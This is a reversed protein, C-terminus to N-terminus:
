ISSHFGFVTELTAFDVYGCIFCENEMAEEIQYKEDRLESFTDVIIGFVVNLGVITVVIFFSLDFITRLATRTWSFPEPVLGEGLGGGNILGWNLSSLFCQVFCHLYMGHFCEHWRIM